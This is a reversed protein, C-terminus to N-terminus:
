AKYTTSSPQFTSILWITCKLLCLIWPIEAYFSTSRFDSTHLRDDSTPIESWLHPLPSGGPDGRGWNLWQKYSGNHPANTCPCNIVTSLSILTCRTWRTLPWLDASLDVPSLDVISDDVRFDSIFDCRLVDSQKTKTLFLLYSVKKFTSAALLQMAIYLLILAIYNYEPHGSTQFVQFHWPIQFM